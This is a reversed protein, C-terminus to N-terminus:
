HNFMFESSNLLVWYLDAAAKSKDNSVGGGEIYKVAKSMEDATPERSLTALYLAEICRKSDEPKFLVAGGLLQGRDASTIDNLFKGNMLALAQLISTQPETRKDSNNAFRAIFEDRPSVVNNNPDRRGGKTVPASENYYTALALSDFFQEATLSKVSMRAFATTDLQSENTMKSTLQYPKSLVIARILYKMDYNHEVFAKALADLLEPNSPQNDVTFDDVPEVIGFGMLHGWIRNVIARAFYPNDKSTIWEALAERPSKGKKWDPVSDDLFRAKVKIDTGPITLENRGRDEEGQGDGFDQPQSTGIGAFFAAYQWFQKRKWKDFKHDHCNACELRVGLFLRSTASGLNDPKYENAQYFIAPGNQAGLRGPRGGGTNGTAVPATLLEFVMKDYATNERIKKQIWPTIQRQLLQRQQNNDPPILLDRWFASYTGVYGSSELLKEILKERKDAAKDDLFDRAESTYPIRGSIDLFVRRMFEADDALPAEQVKLKTWRAAVHKNIADVLPQAERVMASQAPGTTPETWAAAPVVILLTIASFPMRWRMRM